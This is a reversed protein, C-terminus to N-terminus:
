DLGAALGSPDGQLNILCKMALTQNQIFLGNFRLEMRFRPRHAHRESHVFIHPAESQSCLEDAHAFILDPADAWFHSCSNEKHNLLSFLFMPAM